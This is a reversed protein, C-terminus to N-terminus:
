AQGEAPRYKRINELDDEKHDAFFLTVHGGTIQQLVVGAKRGTPSSLALEAARRSEFFLEYMRTYEMSGALHIEVQSIAERRLGPMEEALHLFEPWHDEGAQWAASPEILIVLKYM